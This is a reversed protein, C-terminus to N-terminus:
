LLKQWWCVDRWGGLKWGVERYVGISTFGMAEHLGISADNPLAIGAFASHYRGSLDALLAAYLKRGIGRRAYQPDVYIAVDCSSAYAPRTRHQSGYAYGAVEGATEAVYWAHSASCDTIRQQMELEDPADLEFSTWSEEVFPRYIAACRLADARADARRVLVERM